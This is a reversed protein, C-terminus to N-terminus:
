VRLGSDISFVSAKAPNFGIDLMQGTSISADSDARLTFPSGGLTSWAVTDAGMPEVLEIDLTTQVPQSQVSDGIAIHEPRIGFEVVM